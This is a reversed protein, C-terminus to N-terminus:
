VLMAPLASCRQGGSLVAPLAMRRVVCGEGRMCAIVGWVRVCAIVGRGGEGRVYLCNGERGEGRVARM